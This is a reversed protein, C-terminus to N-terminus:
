VVAVVVEVKSCVNVCDVLDIGRSTKSINGLRHLFSAAVKKSSRLFQMSFHLFFMKEQLSSMRTVFPAPSFVRLMYVLAFRNM